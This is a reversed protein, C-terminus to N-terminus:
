PFEAFPGLGEHSIMLFVSLMEVGDHPHEREFPDADEVAEPLCSLKIVFLSVDAVEDLTAM